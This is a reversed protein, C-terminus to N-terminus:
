IVDDLSLADFKKIFNKARKGLVNCMERVPTIQEPLIISGINESTLIENAEIDELAVLSKGLKTFVPEKGRNNKSVAVMAEVRNIDRCFKRFGEKELAFSHDSGKQSRDFTVHKEFVRAGLMYAVPGSLTGNFHDSSGIDINPYSTILEQIVGLNLEEAPCPYKSECHLVALKTNFNLITEVSKTVHFQTGGGTSMVIPLGTRAIKELFPLNGLDFSAIKLVDTNLDILAELSTEDFPTCMFDVNLERCRERLKRLEAKSLELAERHEGYTKGFSNESNYVKDLAERSFLTKNDRIQFKVAHAGVSAFEEVFRMANEIKGQHNQGVEAIFYPGESSRSKLFEHM